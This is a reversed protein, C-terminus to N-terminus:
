LVEEYIFQPEGNVTRFGWRYKVGNDIYTHPMIEEVHIALQQTGETQSASIKSLEEDVIDMNENLDTVLVNEFPEPKKLKYKKTYNM